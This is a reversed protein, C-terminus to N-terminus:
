CHLSRGGDVTLVHGTTYSGESILFSVAKAIEAPDGQRKLAIRSLISEKTDNDMAQEPWLIAGPAVANVRIHPALERALSKTLMVLGAKAACYVPHGKLPRDAHIDVINVISGQHKKLHPMAAQSLFLPAKLNSGILDDWHQLTIEGVPTPYFTSANNILVDLRGFHDICYQILTNHSSIDLLDAQILTSSNTRRHNLETNLQQAENSSHRYHIGISAGQQHLTRAIQAGIRQAAGTILVVKNTLGTDQKEM